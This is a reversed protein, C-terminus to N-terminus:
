LQRKMDSEHNGVHRGGSLESIDDAYDNQADAARSGHGSDFISTTYASNPFRAGLSHMIDEAIPMIYRRDVRYLREPLQIRLGGVIAAGQQEAAAMELDYLWLESRGPARHRATVAYLERTYQPSLAKVLQIKLQQRVTSSVRYSVRCQTGVALVYPRLRLTQRRLSSELVALANARTRAAALAQLEHAHRIVQMSAVRWAEEDETNEVFQAM